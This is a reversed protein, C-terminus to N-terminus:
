WSKKFLLQAACSAHKNLSETDLFMWTSVLCIDNKSPCVRFMYTKKFCHQSNAMNKHPGKQPSTKQITVFVGGKHLQLPWVSPPTTPGPGFRISGFSSDIIKDLMRADFHPWSSHKKQSKLSKQQHWTPSPQYPTPTHRFIRANYNAPTRNSETPCQSRKIAKLIQAGSIRSAHHMGHDMCIAVTM